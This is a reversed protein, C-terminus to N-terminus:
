QHLIGHKSNEFSSCIMAIVIWTLLYFMNFEWPVGKPGVECTVVTEVEIVIM